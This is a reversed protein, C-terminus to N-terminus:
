AWQQKRIFTKLSKLLRQCQVQHKVLITSYYYAHAVLFLPSPPPFSYFFYHFRILATPQKGIQGFLTSRPPVQGGSGYKISLRLSIQGVLVWNRFKKRWFENIESYKGLIKMNIRQNSWASGNTVRNTNIRVGSFALSINTKDTEAEKRLTERNAYEKM